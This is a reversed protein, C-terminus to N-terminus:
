INKKDILNVAYYRAGAYWIWLIWIKANLLPEISWCANLLFLFFPFFDVKLSYWGYWDWRIQIFKGFTVDKIWVIISDPSQFINKLVAAINNSNCNKQFIHARVSGGIQSKQCKMRVKRGNRFFYKQYPGWFENTIGKM